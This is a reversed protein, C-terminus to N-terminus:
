RLPIALLMVMAGYILWGILCVGVARLTSSYDLAQRVAVVFCVLMWFFTIIYVIRGFLPIAGFIRLIGPSAAFGTTRLLQGWDAQTQATPLVHAGILYTLGAWVFWLILSAVM